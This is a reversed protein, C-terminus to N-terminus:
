RVSGTRNDRGRNGRGPRAPRRYRSHDPPQRHGAPGRHRTGADRLRRGPFETVDRRNSVLLGALVGYVGDFRGGTPQSDLHSGALVVEESAPELIAVGFMNGISDVRPLLRRVVMERLLLDGQSGHVSSACRSFNMALSSIFRDSSLRFMFRVWLGNMRM